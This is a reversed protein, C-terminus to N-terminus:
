FTPSPRIREAFWKELRPLDPVSIQGGRALDIAAYRVGRPYADGRDMNIIARFIPWLTTVYSVPEGDIHSGEVNSCVLGCLCGTEDYVPGGSMGRDFRASVQYCPFPLRQDRRMEYIERVLGVSTIPEDNLEIHPGGEANKSVQIASNRYGFAMVREGVEPAFPNVHPQRWQHTSKPHSRGPNTGLRLLAIDSAPDAFGDVVDWIIYEPGPLLQIAALHKKIQNASKETPPTDWVQDLVHRATVLLNGCIVTATGVVFASDTYCNVVLRLAVESLPTTPDVREFPKHLPFTSLRALPM